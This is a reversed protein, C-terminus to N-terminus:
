LQECTSENLRPALQDDSLNLLVEALWQRFNTHHGDGTGFELAEKIAQGTVVEGILALTVLMVIRNTNDRNALPDISERYRHSVDVISQILSKFSSEAGAMHMWVAARGEDGRYCEDLVRTIATVREEPTASHADNIANTIRATIRHGLREAVANILGDRSGFHHIINPHAMKAEKAVASIRLGAPGVDVLMAEAADLITNKAEEPSKHTKRAM